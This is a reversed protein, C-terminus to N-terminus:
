WDLWERSSRFGLAPAGGNIGTIIFTQIDTGRLDLGKYILLQTTTGAEYIRITHRRIIANGKSVPVSALSYASVSEPTVNSFVSVEPKPQPQSTDESQITIDFNVGSEALNAVRLKVKDEPGSVLEDETLWYKPASSNGALFLTYDKNPDLQIDKTAFTDKTSTSFFKAKRLGSKVVYYVPSVLSYNITGAMTLNFTDLYFKVGTRDKLGNVVRLNSADFVESTIGEKKCSSMTISSIIMIAAASFFVPIRKINLNKAKM